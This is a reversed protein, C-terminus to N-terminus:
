WNSNKVWKVLEKIDNVRMYKTLEIPALFARPIMLIVIQGESDAKAIDKFIKTNFPYMALVVHAQNLASIDSELSTNRIYAENCIEWHLIAKETEFHNRQDYVLCGAERLGKVVVPQYFNRLSSIIFFKRKM